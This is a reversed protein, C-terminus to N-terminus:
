IEVPLVRCLSNAKLSMQGTLHTQIKWIQLGFKQGSNLANIAMKPDTPGTIEVRRDRLDAPAQAVQWQAERIARTSPLFDLTGGKAIMERQEKRAALRQDRKAHFLQDLHVVFDIAEKTLVKESGVIASPAVRIESM